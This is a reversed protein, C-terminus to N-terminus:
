SVYDVMSPVILGCLGDLVLVLWDLFVIYLFLCFSIFISTGVSSTGRQFFMKFTSIFLIYPISNWLQSRNYFLLILLWVLNLCKFQKKLFGQILCFAYLALPFTSQFSSLQRYLRCSQHLQTNDIFFYHLVAHHKIVFLPSTIILLDLGLISRQWVGMLLLSSLDLLWLQYSSLVTRFTHIFRPARGQISLVSELCILINNDGTDFSLFSSLTDEDLLGFSNATTKTYAM